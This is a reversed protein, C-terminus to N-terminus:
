TPGPSRLMGYVALFTLALTQIQKRGLSITTRGQGLDRSAPGGSVGSVCSPLTEHKPYTRMTPSVVGRRFADSLRFM